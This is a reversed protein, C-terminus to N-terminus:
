VTTNWEDVLTTGDFVAHKLNDLIWKKLEPKRIRSGEIKPKDDTCCKFYRQLCQLEPMKMRNVVSAARHSQGQRTGPFLPRPLKKFHAQMMDKAEQHAAGRCADQANKEKAQWRWGCFCVKVGNNTKM